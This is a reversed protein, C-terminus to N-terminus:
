ERNGQQISKPRGRRESGTVVAGTSIMGMMFGSEDFNYTDADQIGYKAKTNAVLKFWGRLVEPDECLARKYDYKRNFKVKLEPQRKVFTSAWNVGVRGMHREARLSNAMDAVTALRPPFGRANLDLIHQVIIEEETELLKM